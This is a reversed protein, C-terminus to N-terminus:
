SKVFSSETENESVAVKPANRVNMSTMRYGFNV